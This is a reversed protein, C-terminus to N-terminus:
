FINGAEGGRNNPAKEYKGFMIVGLCAYMNSNAFIVVSLALM